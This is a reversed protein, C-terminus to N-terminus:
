TPNIILSKEAPTSNKVDRGVISWGNSSLFDANASGVSIDADSHSVDM